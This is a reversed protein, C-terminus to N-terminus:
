PMELLTMRVVDDRWERSIAVPHMKTDNIILM